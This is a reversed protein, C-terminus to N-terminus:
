PEDNHSARYVLSRVGRYIARLIGTLLYTAMGILLGLEHLLVILAIGVTYGTTVLPRAFLYARTPKPTGEFTINTVMLMSLLLVLPILATSDVGWQLFIWSEAEANLVFTIIVFAQIPAPLGSFYDSSGKESVVNYRALRVAACMAPLASVVLGAVGFEGLAYAFVLYSPAVGFSIVDSLSDLEVGFQSHGQTLRAMFGDLLDFFGALVVLYCAYVYQGEHVQTIALFGSFLNMLTFFSPVAVRHLQGDIGQHFPPSHEPTPPGPAAQEEVSM